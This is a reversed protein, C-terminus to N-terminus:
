DEQRGTFLSRYEPHIYTHPWEEWHSVLGAKVPNNLVYWMVRLFKGKRVRRDFYDEAWFSRGTLDLLVNAQRSTYSKHSQLLKSINVTERFSPARVIVHVHNGMVCVAYVYVVGRQELNKWSDMVLRAIDPRQLHFPGDRRKDLLDDIELEFRSNVLGAYRAFERQYLDQPLGILRAHLQDLKRTRKSRIESLATAPM